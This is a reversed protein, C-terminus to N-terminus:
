RWTAPDSQAQALTTSALVVLSVVVVLVISM